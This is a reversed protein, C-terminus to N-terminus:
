EVEKSLDITICRKAEDFTSAFKIPLVKIKIQELNEVLLDIFATCNIRVYSMQKHYSILEDERYRYGEVQDRNLLDIVIKPSKLDYGLRIKDIGEFISITPANLTIHNSNLTAVIRQESKSFWTLSM